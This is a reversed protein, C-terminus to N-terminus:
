IIPCDTLSEFCHLPLKVTCPMFGTHFLIHFIVAHKPSFCSKPFLLQSTFPLTMPTTVVTLFVLKWHMPVLVKFVTVLLNDLFTEQATSLRMIDEFNKNCSYVTHRPRVTIQGTRLCLSIFLGCIDLSFLFMTFNLDSHESRDGLISGLPERFLLFM